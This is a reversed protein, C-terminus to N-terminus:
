PFLSQASMARAWPWSPISSSLTVPWGHTIWYMAGRGMSLMGLTAIFPPLGLKTIMLGNALGLGCGTLLGGAVALNVPLGGQIMMATLLGALGMISGVSLDIGGTIIVMTMGVAMIATLSFSRMVSFLNATTLFADSSVALIASLAIVALVVNFERWGTIRKIISRARQGTGSKPAQTATSM